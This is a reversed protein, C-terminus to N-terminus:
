KVVVILTEGDFWSDRISAAQVKGETISEISSFTPRSLLLIMPHTEYGHGSDTLFDMIGEFEIGRKTTTVSHVAFGDGSHGAKLSPVENRWFIFDIQARIELSLDDYSYTKM